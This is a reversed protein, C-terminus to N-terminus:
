TAHYHALESDAVDYMFALQVILTTFSLFHVVKSLFATSHRGMMPLKQRAEEVESRSANPPEGVQLKVLVSSSTSHSLSKTHHIGHETVRIDPVTLVSNGHIGFDHATVNDDNIVIATDDVPKRVCPIPFTYNKTPDKDPEGKAWDHLFGRSNDGTM